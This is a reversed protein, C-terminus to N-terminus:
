LVDLDKKKYKKYLFIMAFVFGNLLQIVFLAISKTLISFIGFSLFMLLSVAILFNCIKISIKTDIKLEDVISEMNKIHKDLEQVYQYLNGTSHEDLMNAFNLQIKKRIYEEKVENLSSDSFSISKSFEFESKDIHSSVDM